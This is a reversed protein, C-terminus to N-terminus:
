REINQGMYVLCLVDGGPPFRVLYCTHGKNRMIASCNLSINVPNKVLFGAINESFKESFNLSCIRDGLDLSNKM